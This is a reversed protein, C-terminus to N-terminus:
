RRRHTSVTVSATVAVPDPLATIAASLRDPETHWANPGMRVATHVEAHRLRLEFEVEVAAATIFGDALSAELRARKDPAVRLLGLAEVLEGLHRATPAAVVLVGGDALVRHTEAPNRPAFVSQVLTVARDAVPLGAWVDAAIAAARPHARAARRLAPKSVEVALGVRDPAATLVAALHHGTGAGLDLVGGAPAGAAADTLAATIPAYHGAALFDARAGVMEATDGAPVARGGGLLNLYGQRAIDFSHRNSCRAAGDVISLRSVCHPCRLWGVVEDLM